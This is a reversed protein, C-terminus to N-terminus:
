CALPSLISVWAATVIQLKPMAVSSAARISVIADVISAPVVLATASPTTPVIAGTRTITLPSVYGGTGLTVTSTITRSITTDAATGIDVFPQGYLGLQNTGPQNPVQSAENFVGVVSPDTTLGPFLPARNTRM